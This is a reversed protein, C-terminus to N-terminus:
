GLLPFIALVLVWPLVANFLVHFAVHAAGAVSADAYFNQKLGLGWVQGLIFLEKTQTDYRFINLVPVIFIFIIFALQTARRFVLLKNFHRM